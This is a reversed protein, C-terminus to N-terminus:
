QEDCVLPWAGKGTLVLVGAQAFRDNVFATFLNISAVVREVNPDTFDVRVAKGDDHAQGVIIHNPAGEEMTYTVGDVVFGGTVIALVPLRGIVLDVGVAGDPSACSMNATALAPSTAVFQAAVMALARLRRM